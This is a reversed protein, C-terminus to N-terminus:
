TPLSSTEGQKIAGCNEGYDLVINATLMLQAAVDVLRREKIGNKEAFRRLEEFDNRIWTVYDDYRPAIYEIFYYYHDRLLSPDNQYIKLHEGIFTPQSTKTMSKHVQIFLSRLRSSHSGGRDEGTVVVMGQPRRERRLGGDATGRAKGVGDGYFRILTELTEVMRNGQEKSTAPHYDDMVLVSDATEFMKHELATTTDAFNAPVEKESGDFLAFLCTAVATKLSGSEGEIFTVFHIEHGADRFLSSLLALHAILFLTSSKDREPSVFGFQQANQFAQKPDSKGSLTISKGTECVVGPIEAKDHAYFYQGDEGKWWGVECYYHRMELNASQSSVFNCIRQAANPVDASIVIGPIRARIINAIKPIDQLKITLEKERAFEGQIIRVVIYTEVEGDRHHKLMLYAPKIDCNMLEQTRNSAKDKYYLRGRANVVIGGVIKESDATPNKDNVILQNITGDMEDQGSPLREFYGPSVSRGNLLALAMIARQNEEQRKIDLPANMNLAPYVPKIDETRVIHDNVCIEEYHYTRATEVAHGAIAKQKQPDSFVAPVRLVSGQRGYEM